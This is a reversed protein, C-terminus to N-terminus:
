KPFKKLPGIGGRTLRKKLRSAIQFYKARSDQIKQMARNEIRRSKGTVKNVKLQSVKVPNRCPYLSAKAINSLQLGGHAM